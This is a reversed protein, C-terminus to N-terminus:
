ATSKTPSQAHMGTHELKLDHEWETVISRVHEETVIPKETQPGNLADLRVKASAEDIIDIAKDPFHRDPLREASLQVALALAADSIRVNHHQEYRPRLGKLIELTLTADPEEIAVPQFRRELTLDHAIYQNYDEPTSAGIVQLEGRSLAPKLIDAADIAGTAEGAEALTHIEDIFLIINRKANIIEDTLAKLRKEFEGRYKTGAVLGALDLALVRKGQLPEPVQNKAIESALEEVIATKGVGSYGILVPNSKTRRSLIQLVRHIEHSRGVVPDLKGRRALDTLDKAYLELTMTRSQNKQSAFFLYGLLGIFAVTIIVYFGM